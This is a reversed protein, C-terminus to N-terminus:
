RERIILLDSTLTFEQATSKGYRLVYYYAGDPLPDGNFIANWDNQYNDSNYVIEGWRNFVVLTNNAFNELGEFILADNVNDGNPTIMNPGSVPGENGDNEVTISYVTTYMCGNTDTSTAEITGSEIATFTTEICDSCSLDYTTSTWTADVANDISISVEDGSSAEITQNSNDILSPLVDVNIIDTVTCGNANIATLTYDGSETINEAQDDSITQNGSSWVVSTLGNPVVTFLSFSEESCLTVQEEIDISEEQSTGIDITTEATCGNEDTISVSYQSSPLNDIVNQDVSIQLESITLSAVGIGNTSIISVTGNELGCTTSNIETDFTIEPYNSVVVEDVVICGDSTVATLQYTGPDSVNISESDGVNIGDLTWTLSTFVDDSTYILDATSETCISIDDGLSLSAAESDAVSIQEEVMCGNEDTIVLTYTDSSLDEIVQTFDVPVNNLTASTIQVDNTVSVQLTGDDQGCTTGVVDTDFRVLEPATLEFELIVERGESDKITATYDGPALDSITTVDSAGNSWMITIPEIGGTIDLTISGDETNECSPNTTEGSAIIQNADLSISQFCTEGCADVVALSVTYNQNGDPYQHTVTPSDDVLPDSGDGFNWTYTVGGIIQQNFTALNNADIDVTFPICDIPETVCVEKQCTLTGGCGDQFECTFTYTGTLSSTFTSGNLTQTSNDPLDVQCTISTMGNVEINFVFDDGSTTFTVEFLDCSAESDVTCLPICCVRHCTGDFYLMCVYIYGDSNIINQIEPQNIDIDVQNGTGISGIGDIYWKADPHDSYSVQYGETSNGEVEILECDEYPNDLCITVCCREYCGTSFDFYRLCIEFSSEGISAIDFINGEPNAVGRYSGEIFWSFDRGISPDFTLNYLGSNSMDGVYDVTIVDCPSPEKLCIPTCCLTYCKLMPNYYLCCIYYRGYNGFDYTISSESGLNDGGIWTSMLILDEDTNSDTLNFEFESETSQIEHSGCLSPITLKLCCVRECGDDDIYYLCIIYAKGPLFSGYGFVSTMNSEDSVVIEETDADIVEWKSITYDTNADFTVSYEDEEAFPLIRSISFLDCDFDPTLDPLCPACSSICIDDIRVVENAKLGTALTVKELGSIDYRPRYIVINGNIMIFLEKNNSDYIISIDFWQNTPFLKSPSFELNDTVLTLSAVNLNTPNFQLEFKFGQSDYLDIFLNTEPTIFASMSLKQVDGAVSPIDYLSGFSTTASTGVGEIYNDIGNTIVKFSNWTPDIPHASWEAADNIDSGVMYNEFDECVKMGEFECPGDEDCPPVFGNRYDWVVQCTANLHGNPIGILDGSCSYYEFVTPLPNSVDFCPIRQVEYYCLDGIKCQSIITNATNNECNFNIPSVETIIDDIWSADVGECCNDYCDNTNGCTSLCVDDLKGAGNATLQTDVYFDDFSLIGTNAVFGVRKNNVRIELNSNSSNLFLEVEVWEEFNYDAAAVGPFGNADVTQFTPTIANVGPDGSDTPQLNVQIIGNNISTVIGEGNPVWLDYSLRLINAPSYSPLTYTANKDVGEIELYNDGNEEKVLLSGNSLISSWNSGSEIPTNVTYTDFTECSIPNPNDCDFEGCPPIDGGDCSWIVQFNTLQNYLDENSGQGVWFTFLINGQCDYVRGERDPCEGLVFVCQGNWRAQSITNNLCVQNECDQRASDKVDELWSKDSNPCCDEYCPDKCDTGGGTSCLMICCIKICGDADRFRVSVWIKTQPPINYDGPRFDDPNEIPQGAYEQPLDIQWGYIDADPHNTLGLDYSGTAQDYGEIIIDDCNLPNTCCFKFCCIRYCKFFRDYIIVYVNYMRAEPFQYNLTDGAGLNESDDVYWQVIDENESLGNYALSYSLSDNNEELFTPIITADCTGFVPVVVKICCYSRCGDEDIYSFCIYYTQGQAFSGNPIDNTIFNMGNSGSKDKSFGGGNEDAVYVEWLSGEEEIGIGSYTFDGYINGDSDFSWGNIVIDDCEDFIGGEDIYPNFPNYCITDCCTEIEGCCGYYEKCIQFQGKYPITWRTTNGALEWFDCVCTTGPPCECLADIRWGLVADKNCSLQIEDESIYEIDFCDESTDEEDDICIYECCLLDGTGIEYYCVKYIGNQNFTLTCSSPPIDLTCNNINYGIDPEISFTFPDNAPSFIFSKTDIKRLGEFNDCKQDEPIYPFCYQKCCIEWYNCIPNYTWCCVTYEGYPLTIQEGEDLTDVVIGDADTIEIYTTDQESANVDTPVVPPTGCIFSCTVNGEENEEYFEIRPYMDCDYSPFSACYKICCSQLQGEADLYWFCIYYCGPLPCYYDLTGGDYSISDLATFDGETYLSDLPFAVEFYQINLNMPNDFVVHNDQTLDDNVVIDDCFNNCDLLLKYRSIAGKWGDVVVIYNGAKLTQTIVEKNSNSRSSYLCKKETTSIKEFLYLELDNSSLIDLTLTIEQMSNLSFEYADEPGWNLGNPTNNGGVDTCDCYYSVENTSQSATNGEVMMGCRLVNTTKNCVGGCTFSIEYRGRTNFSTNTEVDVVVYIEEWAGLNEVIVSESNRFGNNTAFGPRSSSALCGSLQGEFCDSYVFIDHDVADISNLDIVLEEIDGGTSNRYRYVVEPNDFSTTLITNNIDCGDNTNSCSNHSDYVSSPKYQNNNANDPDNTHFYVLTGSDNCEVDFADTCDLENDPVCITKCFRTPCSNPAVSTRASFNEECDWEFCVLYCGASPFTICYDGCCGSISAENTCLLENYQVSLNPEFSFDGFDVDYSYPADGCNSPVCTIQSPDFVPGTANENSTHCTGEIYSSQGCDNQVVLEMTSYNPPPWVTIGSQYFNGDAYWNYSSGSVNQSCSADFQFGNFEYCAIPPAGGNCSSGNITTSCNLFPDFDECSVFKYAQCLNDFYFTGSTSNLELETYEATATSGSGYSLAVTGLSNGDMFIETTNTSVNAIIQINHWTDITYNSSLSIDSQILLSGNDAFDFSLNPDSSSAGFKVTGGVVSFASSIYIDFSYYAEALDSPYPHVLDANVIGPAQNDFNCIKLASDDDVPDGTGMCANIEGDGENDTWSAFSSYDDVNDLQVEFDECPVFDMNAQTFGDPINCFSCQGLTNPISIFMIFATALLYVIATKYFTIRYRM